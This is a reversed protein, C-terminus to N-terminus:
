ELLYTCIITIGVHSKNTSTLKVHIDIRNNKLWLFKTIKSLQNFVYVKLNHKRRMFTDIMLESNFENCNGIFSWFM